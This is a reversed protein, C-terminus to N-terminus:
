CVKALCLKLKALSLSGYILDLYGTMRKLAVFNRSSASYASLSSVMFCISCTMAELLFADTYSEKESVEESM